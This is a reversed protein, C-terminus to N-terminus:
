SQPPFPMTVHAQLRGKSVTDSMCQVTICLRHHAPPQARHGQMSHVAVAICVDAAALFDGRLQPAARRAANGGGNLDWSAWIAFNPEKVLTNLSLCSPPQSYM